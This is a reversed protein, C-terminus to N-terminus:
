LDNKWCCKNGFISSEFLSEEWARYLELSQVLGGTFEPELAITIDKLDRLIMPMWRNDYSLMDTIEAVPVPQPDATDGSEETIFFDMDLDWIVGTRSNTEEFCEAMEEHTRFYFIEHPVGYRDSPSNCIFDQLDYRETISVDALTPSDLVTFNQNQRDIKLM